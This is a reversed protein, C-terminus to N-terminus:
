PADRLEKRLNDRYRSMNERSQAIWISFQDLGRVMGVFMNPVNGTKILIDCTPHEGLLNIGHAYQRLSQAAADFGGAGVGAIPSGFVKNFEVQDIRNQDYVNSIARQATGLKNALMTIKDQLNRSDIDLCIREPNQTTLSQRWEDILPIGNKEIVSEIVSSEQLLENITQKSRGAPLQSPQVPPAGLSSVAPFLLRYTSYGPFAATAALCLLAVVFPWWQRESRPKGAERVMLVVILVEAIFGLGGFITDLIQLTYESPM